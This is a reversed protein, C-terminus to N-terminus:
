LDSIFECFAFTASRFTVYIRAFYAYFMDVVRFIEFSRFRRTPKIVLSTTKIETEKNGAFVNGRLRVKVIVNVRDIGM